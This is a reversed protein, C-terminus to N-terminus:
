LGIWEAIMNTHELGGFWSITGANTGIGVKLTDTIGNMLVITTLQLTQQYASAYNILHPVLMYRAGNKSLQLYITHGGGAVGTSNVISVSASVRYYGPTKPTYTYTTPYLTGDTDVVQLNYRVTTLVLPNSATVNVSVTSYAMMFPFRTKGYLGTGGNAVALNGAMTIIGSNTVPGGSFTLGTEGGSVNVNSVTGFVSSNAIIAAKTM